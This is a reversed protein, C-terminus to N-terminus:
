LAYFEPEGLRNFTQQPQKTMICGCPVEFLGAWWQGLATDGPVIIPDLHGFLILDAGAEGMLM